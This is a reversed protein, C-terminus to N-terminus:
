CNIKMRKRKKTAKKIIIDSAKKMIPDLAQEIDIDDFIYERLARMKQVETATM